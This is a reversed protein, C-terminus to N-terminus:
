VASRANAVVTNKTSIIAACFLLRKSSMEDFHNGNDKENANDSDNCQRKIQITCQVIHMTCQADDQDTAVILVIDIVVVITSSLAFSGDCRTFLEVCAAMKM